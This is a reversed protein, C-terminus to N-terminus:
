EFVIGFICTAIIMPRHWAASPKDIFRVLEGADDVVDVAMLYSFSFTCGTIDPPVQQCVMKTEVEYEKDKTFGKTTKLCRTRRILPTTTFSQCPQKQSLKEYMM